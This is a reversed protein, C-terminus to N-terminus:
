LGRGHFVGFVCLEVSALGVSEDLRNWKVHQEAHAESAQMGVANGDDTRDFFRKEITEAGQVAADARRQGVGGDADGDVAMESAAAEDGGDFHLEIIETRDAFSADEGARV